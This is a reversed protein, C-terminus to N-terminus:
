YGKHVNLVILNLKWKYGKETSIFLRLPVDRKQHIPVLECQYRGAPVVKGGATYGQETSLRTVSAEESDGSVVLLEYQGRPMEVIFEADGEGELFDRRLLDPSGRDVATIGSDNKFGYGQKPTFAIEDGSVPYFAMYKMSRGSDSLTQAPFETWYEKGATAGFDFKYLTHNAHRLNGYYWERTAGDLARYYATDADEGIFIKRNTASLHTLVSPADETGDVPSVSPSLAIFYQKGKETEFTLIGKEWAFAIPAGDLYVKYDATLYPSTVRACGGAKSDLKIYLLEGDALAASVEFAGKALLKDYSVDRWAPYDVYRARFEQLPYGYRFAEAYDPKGDPIAPFVRIVGNHSGLLMEGVAALMEGTFEKNRIDAGIDALDKEAKTVVMLEFGPLAQEPSEVPM